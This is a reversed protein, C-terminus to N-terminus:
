RRIGRPELNSPLVFVDESVAMSASGGDPSMVAAPGAPVYIRAATVPPGAVAPSSGLPVLYIAGYPVYPYNAPPTGAPWAETVGGFVDWTWLSENWTGYNAGVTKWETYAVGSKAGWYVLQTQPNGGLPSRDPDIFQITAPFVFHWTEGTKAAWSIPTYDFSTNTGYQAAGPTAHIYNLGTYRNLESNPSAKVAPVYDLLLPGWTWYPVDDTDGNTASHYRGDPGPSADQQFHYMQLTNLTFNMASPDLNGKFHFDEWWGDEMGWWGAAKSSDLQNAVYSANGWYFWRSLIAETGWAGMDIYVHTTLNPDVVATINTYLQTYAGGYGNTIDYKAGNAEGAIWAGFATELTGAKSCLPNTNTNWWGQLASQTTDTTPVGFIRYSEQADTTLTIVSRIKYGDFFPKAPSVGPCGLNTLATGNAKDLYQMNWSFTLLKGPAAGYNFVPLFVPQGLNYGPVSAGVVNVRFPAYIYGNTTTNYWQTYPYTEYRPLTPYKTGSCVLDAVSTKNFCNAGIPWDTKYSATRYDWWEGYPVNFFDYYTYDLTSPAVSAMRTTKGSLSASDTVTLTITYLGATTYNHFLITTSVNQLASSDGWNWAYHTIANGVPSSSASGDAEVMLKTRTVVFSAVPAGSITISQQTYGKQNSSDIVTLNVTYTGLSTYTHTTTPTTVNSPPSGDGWNWVYYLIMLRIPSFSSSANVSLTKTAADVTYTFSAVPAVSATSVSQQEFGKQNLSDIVTLNVVYTGSAAYVHSARPATLNTVASGDGWNWVYYRLPLSSPSYSASADTIVTRNSPYVTYTFLAVPPLAKVPVSQQMYGKQNVSDIVTLNVTYTGFSAYPHTAIPMSVNTVVSGDGWNWVYYLLTYGSPSHSASANVLVTANTSYATYTFVAVPPQVTLPVSNQAYGKQLAADIVTLNVTYAGLSAYIHSATATSVNTVGSGDGWNWVYYLLALGVPSTSASANTNVTKTAATATFTFSAVPPQLPASITVLHSVTRSLSYNNTVTLTINVNQGNYSRSYNHYAASVTYTSQSGDGWKWAYGTISGDGGTSASADVRVEILTPGNVSQKAVAFAATPATHQPPHSTPGSLLIYVASGILAIIIIAAVLLVWTKRRRPPERTPVAPFPSTAGEAM